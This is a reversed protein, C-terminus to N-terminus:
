CVSVTQLFIGYRPKASNPQFIPCMKVTHHITCVDLLGYYAHKERTWCLNQEDSTAGFFRKQTTFIRSPRGSRSVLSRRPSSSQAYRWLCNNINLAGPCVPLKEDDREVALPHPELWRVLVWSMNNEQCGLASANSIQVFCVIESCLANGDLVGAMRVIDRRARRQGQNYASDTGWYSKHDHRRILHQAFHIDLDNLRSYSLASQPLGLNDCLLDNFEVGALRVERHLFKTQFGISEMNFMAINLPARAGPKRVRTPAPVIVNRKMEEFLSHVLLYRLMSGQTSNADWHRVCLSALHMNIKHSAEAAQTCHVNFGGSSVVQQVWHQHVLAKDGHSYFGMGDVVADDDTDDTDSVDSHKERRKFRKPPPESAESAKRARRQFDM